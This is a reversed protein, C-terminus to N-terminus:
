PSFHRTIQGAEALLRCAQNIRSPHVDKGLITDALERDTIGPRKSILELVQTRISGVADNTM